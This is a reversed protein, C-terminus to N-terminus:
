GAPMSANKLLFGKLGSTSRVIHWGNLSGLFNKFTLKSFDLAFVHQDLDKESLREHSTVLCLKEYDFALGFEDFEVGEILAELGASDVTRYGIVNVKKEPM